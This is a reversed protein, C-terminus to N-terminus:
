IKSQRNQIPRIPLPPAEKRGDLLHRVALYPHRTIMRPGAYRMVMRMREKMAAQYCHTPCNVCTSKSEQYPCKELRKTAYTMLEQCDPCLSDKSDHVGRCYIVVMAKVTKLERQMRPHDLSM